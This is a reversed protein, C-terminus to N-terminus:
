SPEIWERQTAVAHLPVDWPDCPLAAWEQVNWGLGIRRADPLGACARDYYGAGQGLRHLGRDFGILPLLMVDPEVMEGDAAPQLLGAPGAELPEGPRWVLFRM